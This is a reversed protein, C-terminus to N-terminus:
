VVLQEIKKSLLLRERAIRKSTEVVKRKLKDIENAIGSASSSIDRLRNLSEIEAELRSVNREHRLTNVLFESDYKELLDNLEKDKVMKDSIAKSVAVEQAEYNKKLQLISDDILTLRRNIDRLMESKKKDRQGLGRVKSNGCLSCTEEEKAADDIESGCQPCCVFPFALLEDESRSIRSIKVKSYVLESRLEEQELLKRRYYELLKIESDLIKNLQVLESRLDDAFHTSFTYSDKKRSLYSKSETVEEFIEVIIDDIANPDEIDHDKILRDIEIKAAKKLKIEEKYEEYESELDYLKQSFLNFIFKFACRASADNVPIKLNFFNSDMEGQKLYCMWLLVTFPVRALNSGKLVDSSSNEDGEESAKFLFDSLCYIDLDYVPSAVPQIPLEIAVGDDGGWEVDVYSENNIKRTIGYVVSGIEVVLKVSLLQSSIAPTKDLNAGLCYCM